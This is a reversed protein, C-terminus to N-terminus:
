SASMAARSRPHSPDLSASCWIASGFVVGVGGGAGVCAGDGGDVVVGEYTGVELVVRGVPIVIRATRAAMPPIRLM